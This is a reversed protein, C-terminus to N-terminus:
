VYRSWCLKLGYFALDSFRLLEFMCSTLASTILLNIFFAGSEPLFFCAWRDFSRQESQGLLFDFLQKVETFGLTPLLIVM